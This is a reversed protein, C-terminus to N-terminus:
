SFVKLGDRIACRLSLVSGALTKRSPSGAAMDGRSGKEQGAWVSACWLFSLGPLGAEAEETGKTRTANGNNISESRSGQTPSGSQPQEVSCVPTSAHWPQLHGQLGASRQQRGAGAQQWPRQQQRSGTAAAQQKSGGPACWGAGAAM